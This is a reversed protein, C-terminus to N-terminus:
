KVRAGDISAMFIKNNKCYRIDFDAPNLAIEKRTTLCSAQASGLLDMYSTDDLRITPPPLTKVSVTEGDFTLLRAM